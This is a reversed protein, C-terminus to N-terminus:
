ELDKEHKNRTLISIRRAEFAEKVFQPLSNNYKEIDNNLNKVYDQIKRVVEAKKQKVEAKVPESLDDTRSNTFFSFTFADVLLGDVEIDQNTYSGPRLELLEGNRDDIPVTYKVKADKIKGSMSHEGRSMDLHREVVEINARLNSWQIIVPKIRYSSVFSDKKAETERLFEQEDYQHIQKVIYKSREEFYQSTSKKSFLKM